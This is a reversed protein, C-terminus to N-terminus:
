IPFRRGIPSLRLPLAQLHCALVKLLHRTEFGGSFSLENPLINRTRRRIPLNLRELGLCRILQSYSSRLYMLFVYEM